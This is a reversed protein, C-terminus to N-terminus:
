GVWTVTKLTLVKSKENDETKESKSGKSRYM